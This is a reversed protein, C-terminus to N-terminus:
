FVQKRGISVVYQDVRPQELTQFLDPLEVPFFQRDIGGLDITHQKGVAVEIMHTEKGPQNMLTELAFNEARGWSLLCM